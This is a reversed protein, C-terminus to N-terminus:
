RQTLRTGSNPRQLSRTQLPSELVL